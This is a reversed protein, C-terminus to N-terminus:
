VPVYQSDKMLIGPTKWMDFRKNAKAKELWEPVKV